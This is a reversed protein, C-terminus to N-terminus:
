PRSCSRNLNRSKGGGSKGGGTLRKEADANANGYASRMFGSHTANPVFMSISDPDHKPYSLLKGARLEAANGSFVDQEHSLTENLRSRGGVVRSTDVVDTHASPKARHLAAAGFGAGTHTISYRTCQPSRYALADWDNDPAPRTRPPTFSAALFQNAEFDAPQKWYFDQEYRCCERGPLPVQRHQMEMYKNGIVQGAKHIHAFSEGREEETSQKRPFASSTTTRFQFKQLDGSSCVANVTSSPTFVGFSKHTPM